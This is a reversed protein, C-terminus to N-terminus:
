RIRASGMHGGFGGMHAGSFGGMHGFNGGAFGGMRGFDGGAFHGGGYGFRNGYFGPGGYGYGYGGYYPGYGGWGYDGYDWGYYPDCSYPYASSAAAAGLIGGIVGAAAAAGPNYGSGYTYHHAHVSGNVHAARRPVAHAPRHVTTAATAAALPSLSAFAVVGLATASARTGHTM